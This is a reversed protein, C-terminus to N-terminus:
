KARREEVTKRAEYYPLFLTDPSDLLKKFYTYSSKKELSYIKEAIDENLMMYKFKLNGNRPAHTIYVKNNISFYNLFEVFINQLIGNVHTTYYIGISNDKYVLTLYDYQNYEELCESFQNNKEEFHKKSKQFQKNYFDYRTLLPEGLMRRAKNTGSFSGSMFAKDTISMNDIYQNLTYKGKKYRMATEYNSESHFISKKCDLNVRYRYFHFDKKDSKIKEINKNMAFFHKEIEKLTIQNIDKNASNDIVSIVSSKIKSKPTNVCGSLIMIIAIIGITLKM